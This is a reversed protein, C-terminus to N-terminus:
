VLKGELFRYSTRCAQEPDGAYGDAEVLYDGTYRKEKLFDLVGNLDVSGTGLPAFGNEDM